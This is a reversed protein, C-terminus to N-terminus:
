NINQERSPKAKGKKDLHASSGWANHKPDKRVKIESSANFNNQM